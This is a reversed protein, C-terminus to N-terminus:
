SHASISPVAQKTSTSTEIQRSRGYINKKLSCFLHVSFHGNVNLVTTLNILMKIGRFNPFYYDASLTYFVNIIKKFTSVKGAM